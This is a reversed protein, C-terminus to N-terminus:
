RCEYGKPNVELDFGAVSSPVRNHMIDFGSVFTQKMLYESKSHKTEITECQLIYFSIQM